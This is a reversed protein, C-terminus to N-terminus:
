KVDWFWSITCFMPSPCVSVDQDIENRCFCCMYDIYVYSIYQLVFNTNTLSTQNFVHKYETSSM